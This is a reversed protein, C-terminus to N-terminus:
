ALRQRVEHQHGRAEDVQAADVPLRRVLVGEDVDALEGDVQAVGDLLGRGLGAPLDVIPLVDVAQAEPRLHEARVRALRRRRQALEGVREDLQAEARRPQQRGDAVGGEAELARADEVLQTVVEPDVHAARGASAGVRRRGRRRAAAGGRV